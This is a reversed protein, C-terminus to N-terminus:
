LYQNSFMHAIYENLSSQLDADSVSYEEEKFLTYVWQDQYTLAQHFSFETDSLARYAAMFAQYNAESVATPTRTKQHKLLAFGDDFKAMWTSGVHRRGTEFVLVITETGKPFFLNKPMEISAILRHKTLIRQKYSENDSHKKTRKSVANVPVIAVGVSGPLLSDLMLEVFSIESYTSNSYPPNVFGVNTDYAPLAERLSFCDDNFLHSQGDKNLFMNLAIISFVSPEIEIGFLNNKRFSEKEAFTYAPSLAITRWASTLFGGTGACIDLIRSDLDIDAIDTFLRTIHPPTLVIGLDSGGKTSYTLFVNFFLSILDLESDKYHEFLLRDIDSILRHLTGKAYKGRIGRKEDNRLSLITPRLEAILLEKDVVVSGKIRRELTQWLVEAIDKNGNYQSYATKFIPDELAFLIAGLVYLRNHEIVNMEGHMYDNIQKASNLLNIQSIQSSVVLDASMFERYDEIRGIEHINLNAFTDVGQKWGFTDIKRTLPDTGSCAIAIVNFRQKLFKAYWLVGNVAYEDVRAEIDADFFHKNTDRKNEVLLVLNSKEDFVIFEPRGPKGTDRKSAVSLLEDISGVPSREAWVRVSPDTPEFSANIFGKSVFENFVWMDTVKELLQQKRRSHTHNFYPLQRGISQYGPTDQLKDVASSM